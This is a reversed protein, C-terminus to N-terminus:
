LAGKLSIYIYVYLCLCISVYIYLYIYICSPIKPTSLPNLTLEPVTKHYLLM